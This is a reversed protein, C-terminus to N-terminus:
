NFSYNFVRAKNSSGGLIGLNYPKNWTLASIRDILSDTFAYILLVFLDTNGKREKEREGGSGGGRKLILLLLFYTYMNM